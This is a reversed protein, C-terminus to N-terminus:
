YRTVVVGSSGPLKAQFKAEAVTEGLESLVRVAPSEIHVVAVSLATVPFERTVGARDRGVYVGRAAVDPPLHRVVRTDFSRRVEAAIQVADAAECIIIFDDGGIHGIFGNRAEMVEHMARGVDRIAEDAVGFGFRDAFSKFFDLDLYCIAFPRGLERWRAFEREAAIAGPIGTTPNRDLAQRSLRLLARVRAVLERPDFPKALYDDAGADFGLLRKEMEHQGTLILVPVHDIRRDNKIANCVEFGNPRGMHYDLVVLDPALRMVESLAERGDTALRVDHGAARLLDGVMQRMGADDDAFLIQSMSDGAHADWQSAAPPPTRVFM